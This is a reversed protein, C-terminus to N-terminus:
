RKEKQSITRENLKDITMRSKDLFSNIEPVDKEDFSNNNKRKDIFDLFIKHDSLNYYTSDDIPELRSNSTSDKILSRNSTSDNRSSSNSFSHTSTSKNTRTGDHTSQRQKKHKYLKATNFEKNCYDFDVKKNLCEKCTNKM